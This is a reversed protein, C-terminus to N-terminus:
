EDDRGISDSFFGLSCRASRERIISEYDPNLEFGLGLCDMRRCALLTQGSGLFPDFVIPDPLAKKNDRHIFLKILRIPIEVPFVAPHGKDFKGQLYCVDKMVDLDPVAEGGRRGTGGDHHFREKSGLLILEYCGRLYPNSDSGMGTNGAIINEGDSGKVWIIFERMLFGADEMLGFLRIGVPEIRGKGILLEDDKKRKFTPDYDNWSDASKHNRNWKVVGPINLCLVGGPRLTRYIGNLVSFMWEYYDNWKMEDDYKGYNKGVNYPPSTIVLDVCEDPMRKMGDLCDDICWPQESIAPYWWDVDKYTKM